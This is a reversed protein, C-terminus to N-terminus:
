RWRRWGNPWSGRDGQAGSPPRAHLQFTPRRSRGWTPSSTSTRRSSRPWRPASTRSPSCAVMQTTISLLGSVEDPKLPPSGVNVAIVVEAGCRDRVERIPVNDVLGGDVLKRARYQLPAMLGPVSMSARMAQTLSGDRFVVREGTGIDTAIISVPLPLKQIEPEGTNARVLQQLLAQDEARWWARSAWPAAM